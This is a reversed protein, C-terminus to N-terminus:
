GQTKWYDATKSAMGDVFQQATIKGKLLDNNLPYLVNKVFNGGYLSDLSDMFVVKEKKQDTLVSNLQKLDDPVPLEPRPALNDAVAPIGRALDKNAFYAIFAKAADPNKAKKTVAWGIPLFEVTDHTADDPKPFQFSGYNIAKGGGQKGLYERTESPGWSGVFLYSADGDAWRQQIQPFKGADWGDILYGGKAIKAVVQAAKLYGAETKWSQGTKDAAAKQMAGAGVYREAVQSVFYANYFDIDGDQAIAGGGAKAKDLLKFLDDITKPETFDKVKDKNYWWANSLVEYPIEFIKGDKDKNAPLNYLSEPIVDKVTKGGAEGTKMALVDDLGQTGGADVVAAKVQSIDQDILDPVTDTNLAPAVNQTLFKRGLWQVNVTVGAKQKFCDFAKQLLRGQPEDKTWMSWYTFTTQTPKVGVEPCPASMYEQEGVLHGDDTAGGGGGGGSGGDNSSGCGALVLSVAAGLVVASTRRTGDVMSRM